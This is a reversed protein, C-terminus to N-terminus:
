ENPQLKDQDVEWQFPLSGGKGLPKPKNEPLMRGEPQWCYVGVFCSTHVENRGGFVLWYSVCQLFKKKKLFFFMSSFVIPSLTLLPQFVSKHHSRAHQYTFRNGLGM